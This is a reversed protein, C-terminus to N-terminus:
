SITNLQMLLDEIICDEPITNGDIWNLNEDWYGPCDRLFPGVPFCYSMEVIIPKGNKYLFDYGMSQFGLKRSISFALLICEPDISDPSYELLGGGSARFDNQRNYRRLGFAREGIIVIRTDYKNSPLFEQFYIYGIQKGHMKKQRHLSRMVAPLRKLKTFLNRKEKTKRIKTFTDSFYRPVSRFGRSFARKILRRAIYKNEVLKVSSSAAGSKLKFIVPYETSKCLKLAEGHDFFIYSDAYPGDIADMLYKQAVKDDYHWSTQTNPYVLLGMNEVAQIIKQAFLKSAYDTHSWHWLLADCGKIQSIIDTKLCNVIQYPISNEKCYQIWRDSFSGKRDHIALKIPGNKDLM